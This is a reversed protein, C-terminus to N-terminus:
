EVLKYSTTGNKMSAQYVRDSVDEIEPMRHTVLIFQFGYETALDELLRAINDAYNSSVQAFTEDLFLVRSSDTLLIMIVRLLFGTVAAVGGGRASLIDTEVAQGDYVSEIKFKIETRKGVAKQVVLFRMDDNFVTRLGNTVLTEIRKQVELERSDAYQGILSVAQDLTTLTDKSQSIEAEYREKQKILLDRQSRQTTIHTKLSDLSETLTTINM